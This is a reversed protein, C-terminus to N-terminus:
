KAESAITDYVLKIFRSKNCGAVIYSTAHPSWAIWTKLQTDDKKKKAVTLDAAFMATKGWEKVTTIRVEGADSCYALYKGKPDFAVSRIPSTTVWPTSQDEETSKTNLTTILSVKRLDWVM